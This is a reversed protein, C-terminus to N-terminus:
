VGANSYNSAIYEAAERPSLIAWMTGHAQIILAGNAIVAVPLVSYSATAGVPTQKLPVLDSDPDVVVGPVEALWRLAVFLAGASDVFFCVCAAFYARDGDDMEVLVKVHDASLPQNRRRTARLTVLVYRRPSNPLEQKNELTMKLQVGCLVPTQWTLTPDAGRTAAAISRRLATAEDRDLWEPLGEGTAPVFTSVAGVMTPHTPTQNNTYWSEVETSGDGAATPPEGAIGLLDRLSWVRRDRLEM